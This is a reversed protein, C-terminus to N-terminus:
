PKAIILTKDLEITLSIHLVRCSRPKLQPKEGLNWSVHCLSESENCSLATIYLAYSSRYLERFKATRSLSIEFVNKCAIEGETM